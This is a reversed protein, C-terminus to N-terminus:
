LLKPTFRMGVKIIMYIAKYNYPLLYKWPPFTAIIYIKNTIRVPVRMKPIAENVNLPFNNVSFNLLLIINQLTAM